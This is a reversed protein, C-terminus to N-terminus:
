DKLRLCTVVTDIHKNDARSKKLFFVFFVILSGAMVGSLVGILVEEINYLKLHLLASITLGNYIFLVFPLKSSIKSSPQDLTLAPTTNHNALDISSLHLWQYLLIFVSVTAVISSEECPKDIERSSCTANTNKAAPLVASLFMLVFGNLFLANWLFFHYATRNYYSLLGFFIYSYFPIYCCVVMVKSFNSADYADCDKIFMELRQFM